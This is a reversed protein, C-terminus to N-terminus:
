RKAFDFALSQISPTHDPALLVTGSLTGQACTWNFRGSLRGTAVPPAATDCEGTKARLETLHRAWHVADRDMTFNVALAGTGLKEITGATWIRRVNDYGRELAPSVALQRAVIQGSESLRTTADWVMGSAGTYTRNTMAFVGVGADPMLLMHSGYGPYGGGHFLVQGLACDDGAILGAAYVAALKCDSRMSGNRNRLQPLGGGTQMARVSARADRQDDAPWAALLHAIWKAYDNASTTIGGMAGFAGHAMYPEERWANDEWRYGIARRAAPVDANEYTTATMGLPAFVEQAIHTSFNKGTVNSIIRGLMAYGLNSYEFRSGRPATRPVGQRLLRTFEAESMPQQRDGWPDDTVFGAKHHLLDAVTLDPAWSQVEPITLYVPDDLRLKGQDRLALIAHGTFAKSMSAIRFGTDATVPASELGIAQVGLAKVHVLRGDAVVGWVMGPVNNAAMWRAFDADLKAYTSQVEDQAAAQAFAPANSLPAAITLALTCLSLPKM